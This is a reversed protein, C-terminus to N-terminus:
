VFFISLNEDRMDYIHGNEFIIDYGEIQFPQPNKPNITFTNLLKDYNLSFQSKNKTNMINSLTQIIDSDIKNNKLIHNLNENGEIIAKQTLDQSKIIKKTSEEPTKISPEFVKEMDYYFSQNGFKEQLIKEFLKEETKKYKEM